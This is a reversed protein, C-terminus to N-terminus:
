KSFWHFEPAANLWHFTKQQGGSTAVVLLESADNLAINILDYVLWVLCVIDANYSM